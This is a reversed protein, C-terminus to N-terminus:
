SIMYDPTMSDGCTLISIAHQSPPGNLLSGTHTVGQNHISVVRLTPGLKLLKFVLRLLMLLFRTLFTVYM